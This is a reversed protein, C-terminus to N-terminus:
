KFLKRLQKNNCKLHFKEFYIHKCCSFLSKTELNKHNQCSAQVDTKIYKRIQLAPFIELELISPSILKQLQALNLRYEFVVKVTMSQLLVEPTEYPAILTTYKYVLFTADLDDNCGMVRLKGSSFFIVVGNEEKVVLQRPKVHLKSNPILSHLQKLDINMELSSRYNTNTVTTAM